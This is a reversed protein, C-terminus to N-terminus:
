ESGREVARMPLANQPPPALNNPGRDSVPPRREDRRELDGWKDWALYKKMNATAVAAAEEDGLETNVAVLRKYPYGVFKRHRPDAEAFPKMKDVCAQLHERAELLWETQPDGGAEKVKRFHGLLMDAYGQRTITARMIRAIDTTESEYLSDYMRIAEQFHPQADEFHGTRTLLVGLGRHVGLQSLAYDPVGPHDRHLEQLLKLASLAREKIDALEDESPPPGFERLDTTYVTSLTFRYDPNQPYRAVLDELLSAAKAISMESQDRDESRLRRHREAYCLALLQQYDPVQHEATLEELLTVARAIRESDRSLEGGRRIGDGPGSEEGPRQPPEIKGDRRPGGRKSNNSGFGRGSSPGDFRHVRLYFSRALEYRVEPPSGKTAIPELIERASDFANRAQDYQRSNRHVQGLENYISALAAAQKPNTTGGDEFQAYMAIAQQYADKAQAYHGLRQRIDGVRRNAEAIRQRFEDTDDGQEALKRYFVLMEDLLAAAEDSLVPQTNVSFDASEETEVAFDEPSVYRHPSLREFIRDLANWALESTAEAKVRQQQESTRATETRVYATTSVVAVLLLLSIALGSLTAVAPNRRAWRRLREAISARRALIPRDELFRQLDEALEAATQYRTDPEVAIAKLVITELDRPISPNDRRPRGPELSGSDHLFSRKRQTEDFAPKLTLLEYLTLGLSYIDSRADTSGQFQEPAMYRLTGVIDGTRSVNDHEMAKALGFDAVWVTGDEDILLNAPKIDRHLTGQRHAYNLAKAVQVGIRAVSQWYAMGFPKAATLPKSVAGSNTTKSIAHGHEVLFSDDVFISDGKDPAITTIAERNSDTASSPQSDSDYAFDLSDNAKALSRLEGNVLARAVSSVNTTRKTGLVSPIAEIGSGTAFQKLQPIIEDIGAGRIIQMVYYHFGDQEGVGLIPVINTHHLKAATKAERRFRRLQKDDLLSQKPLVKVAVRRGLSEQEAEYVIGMGGRGIEQIIRLDGLREIKAPGLSVRGGSSVEKDLKLHEMAAITPFLDRIQEAWEPHAAAYEEVSPRGGDRLRDVFEAALFEVPDRDVTPEPM